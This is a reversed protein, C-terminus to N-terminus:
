EAMSAGQAKNAKNAKNESQSEESGVDPTGKVKIFM